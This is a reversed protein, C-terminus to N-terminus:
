KVEVGAEPSYPSLVNEKGQWREYFAAVRYYYWQNPIVDYDNLFFRNGAVWALDAFNYETEESRQVFFRDAADSEWRLEVGGGVSTATVNYPPPPRDEEACALLSVIVIASLAAVRM